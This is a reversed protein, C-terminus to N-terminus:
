KPSRGRKKPAIYVNEKFLKAGDELYGEIYRGNSHLVRFFNEMSWGGDKSKGANAVYAGLKMLHVKTKTDFEGSVLNTGTGM